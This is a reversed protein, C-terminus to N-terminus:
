LADRYVQLIRECFKLLLRAGLAMAVVSTMKIFLLGLRTVRLKQLM